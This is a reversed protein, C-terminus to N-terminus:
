GKRVPLKTGAINVFDDEMEIMVTQADQGSEQRKEDVIGNIRGLDIGICGGGNDAGYLVGNKEDLSLPTYIWFGPEMIWKARGDPQICCIKSVPDEAFAHSWKKKGATTKVPKGPVDMKVILNGDPDVLSELEQAAPVPSTWKLAGTKSDLACVTYRGKGEKKKVYLTNDPGPLPSGNFEGPAFWLEKGDAGSARIGKMSSTWNHETTYITGDQGLGMGLITNGKHSNGIKGVESGSKPDVIHILGDKSCAVYYRGDAGKEFLGIGDYAYDFLRFSWNIKGTEQDLNYLTNQFRALVSDTSDDIITRPRGEDTYSGFGGDLKQSHEWRKGGDPRYSQITIGEIIGYSDIFYINGNKDVNPPDGFSMNNKVKWLTNGKEDLAFVSEEAARVYINGEPGRVPPHDCTSPAQFSWIVEPPLNAADGRDKFLTKAASSINDAVSPPLGTRNESSKFGDGDAKAPQDGAQITKDGTQLAPENLKYPQIEM